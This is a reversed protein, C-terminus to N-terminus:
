GTYPGKDEFYMNQAGLRISTNKIIEKIASLSIFPPCLVKEVGQIKDLDALMAQVLSIAQSINTNMKWNGAILPKRM